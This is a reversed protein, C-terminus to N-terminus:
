PPCPRGRRDPWCAQQQELGVCDDAHRAEEISSPLLRRDTPMWHASQWEVTSSENRRADATPEVAPGVAVEVDARDDREAGSRLAKVSISASRRPSPALLHQRAPPRALEVGCSFRSPLANRGSPLGAAVSLGAPRRGPRRSCGCRSRGPARHGVPVGVDGVELHVAFAVEVIRAEVVRLLYGPRPACWAPDCAAVLVVADGGFSARAASRDAKAAPESAAPPRTRGRRRAARSLRDEVALRPAGGAM